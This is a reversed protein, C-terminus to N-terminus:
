PLSLYPWGGRSLVELIKKPRFREGPSSHLAGDIVEALAAVARGDADPGWVGATLMEQTLHEVLDGRESLQDIEKVSAADDVWYALPRRQAQKTAVICLCVGYSWVDFSTGSIKDVDDDPLRGEPPVYANIGQAFPGAVLRRRARYMAVGMDALKLTGDATVLVNDVRLDGHVIPEPKAHRLAELATALESAWRIVDKLTYACPQHSRHHASVPRVTLLPCIIFM